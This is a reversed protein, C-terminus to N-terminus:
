QFIGWNHEAMQAPTTKIRREVKASKVDAMVRWVKEADQKIRGVWKGADNVWQGNLVEEAFAAVEAQRRTLGGGGPKCAKDSGRVESVSESLPPSEATVPGNGDRRQRFAAQRCANDKREKYARAMRRNVLTVMGNDDLKVDCTNTMQFENLAGGLEDVSCRALRAIQARNGVIAGCQDLEHMVCLLDIWIGRAAPSLMGVAPDKIWDGTFLQIFPLKM